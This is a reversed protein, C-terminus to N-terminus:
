FQLMFAGDTASVHLKVDNNTDNAICKEIVKKDCKSSLIVMKPSFVQQLEKVAIEGMYNVIVYDVPFQESTRLPENLLLVSKDGVYM